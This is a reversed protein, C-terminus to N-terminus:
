FRQVLVYREEEKWVEFLPWKIRGAALALVRPDVKGGRKIEQEGEVRVMM